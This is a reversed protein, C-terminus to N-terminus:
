FILNADFKLMSLIAFRLFINYIFVSTYEFVRKLRAALMLQLAVRHAVRDTQTDAHRDTQGDADLSKQRYIM